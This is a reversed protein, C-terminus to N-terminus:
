FLENFYKFSNSSYTTELGQHIVKGTTFSKVKQPNDISPTNGLEQWTYGPLAVSFYSSSHSINTFHGGQYEGYVRVGTVSEYSEVVWNPSFAVDWKWPRSVAYEYGQADGTGGGSSNDSPCLMANYPDECDEGQCTTTYYEWSQSIINGWQDYVTTVWYWDVCSNTRATINNLNLSSDKVNSFSKLKGNQYELEHLRKGTVSLYRFKGNCDPDGTNLIKKFTNDPVKFNAQGNEPLYLVINGKRIKGMNDLILVLNPIAKEELNKEKKLGDSIPIIVIKEDGASKEIRLRSFNLNNKLLEVNASQTTKIAPKKSDLWVNVKSIIENNSADASTEKRCSNLLVLNILIVPM